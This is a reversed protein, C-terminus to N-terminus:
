TSLLLCHVIFDAHKSAALILPWAQLNESSTTSQPLFELPSHPKLRIKLRPHASVNILVFHKHDYVWKITLSTHSASIHQGCPKIRVPHVTMM